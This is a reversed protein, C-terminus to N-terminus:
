SRGPASIRRGKRGVGARLLLAGAIWALFVGSTVSGVGTSLGTTLLLAGAGYALVRRRGTRAAVVVSALAATIGFRGTHERGSGTSGQTGPVVMGAGVFGPDCEMSSWGDWGVVTRCFGPSYWGPLYTSSTGQTFVWPLGLSLVLLGSAILPAGGVRDKAHRARLTVDDRPPRPRDM